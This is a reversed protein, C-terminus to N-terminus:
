RRNSERYAQIESIKDSTPKLLMPMDADGPKRAKAALAVFRRQAAFAQAVMAGQTAVDGGIKACLDSFSKFSGNVIDDFATVSASLDESFRISFSLPVRNVTRFFSIFINPCESCADPNCCTSRM